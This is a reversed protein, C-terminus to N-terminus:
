LNLFISASEVLPMEFLFDLDLNMDLDLDLNVNLDLDLNVNLDLDLLQGDKLHWSDVLWM